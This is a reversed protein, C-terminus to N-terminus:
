GPDDDACPTGRPDVCADADEDCDRACEGGVCPNGSSACSGSADCREIGTCFRGDDGCLAGPAAIACAICCEAESADCEEGPEVIGNGCVGDHLELLLQPQLGLTEHERAAYSAGNAAGSAIALTYIGPGRHLFAATVDALVPEGEEVRGLNAVPRSLDPVWPSDDGGDIRGNGDTDVDTWKLGPGEGVGNGVGEVWSSDAVPYVTGGDASGDLPFLLLRASRIDTPLRHLDFKLYVIRMPDADVRLREGGGHEWPAAEGAEVYTDAVPTVDHETPLEKVLSLTDGVTGDARVMELNLLGGDVAVRVYHHSAEARATFGSAGTERVTAGGGGTTVYVTGEGAPAIVGGRLPWTREYHHDHGMFVLDVGFEDFVPVLEDRIGEDSGHEGSSYITDHFVVFTWTAVSAGIERVLFDYQPSGPDLDDYTDLVM